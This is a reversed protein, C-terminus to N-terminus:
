SVLIGEMVGRLANTLFIKGQRLLTADFPEERVTHGSARLMTVFKSRCIGELIAGDAPPTFVAGGCVLFVNTYSGEYVQGSDADVLIAEEGASLGFEPRPFTKWRGLPHKVRIVRCKLTKGTEPMPDLTVEWRATDAYCAIRCRFPVESDQFRAGLETELAKADFPVGFHRAHAALPPFHEERWVLRRDVSLGTTFFGRTGEPFM